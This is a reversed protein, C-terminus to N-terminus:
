KTLTGTNGPSDGIGADSGTPATRPDTAPNAPQYRKPENQINKPQAMGTTNGTTGAPETVQATQTGNRSSVGTALLGM